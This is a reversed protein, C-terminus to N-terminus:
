KFYNPHLKLNWRDTQGIRERTFSHSTGHRRNYSRVRKAMLPIESGFAKYGLKMDVRLQTNTYMTPYSNRYAFWTYTALDEGVQRSLKKFDIDTKVPCAM